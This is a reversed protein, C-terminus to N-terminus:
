EPPQTPCRANVFQSKGRRCSEHDETGSCIGPVRFAPLPPTCRKYRTHNPPIVVPVRVHSQVTGAEDSLSNHSNHWWRRSM